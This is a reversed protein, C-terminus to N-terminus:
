LRIWREPVVRDNSGLTRRMWRAPAVVVQGPSEALWAGWWGFTSNSIVHHRCSAMLRLDEADTAGRVLRAGPLEPLVEERVRDPDDTFVFVSRAGTETAIRETGRRFYDADLLGMVARTTAHDAYDGRRVHVAVADCARIEAVARRGEESLPHRFTFDTRVTDAHDRFYEESQWVGCLYARGPAAVVDPRFDPFTQRYVTLGLAAAEPEPPARRRARRLGALPERLSPDVVEPEVAFVGLGWPRDARGEEYWSLDLKLAEGTRLSLARGAAYQFMQNGLGGRVRVVIM